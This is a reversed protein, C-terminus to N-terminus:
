KCRAYHTWCIFFALDIHPTYHMALAIGTILQVSLCMGAWLGYNWFVTLNSPTPYDVLHDNILQVFPQKKLSLIM